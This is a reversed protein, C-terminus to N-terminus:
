PRSKSAPLIAPALSAFYEQLYRHSFSYSGGTCQIFLRVEVKKFFTVFNWPVQSSSYLMLRLVFHQICAAGGCYFFTSFAFLIFINIPFYTGITNLFPSFARFAQFIFM